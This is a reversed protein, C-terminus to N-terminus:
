NKDGDIDKQSTLFKEKIEDFIEFLIWLIPSSVFAFSLGFLTVQMKSLNDFPLFVVLGIFLLFNILYLYFFTKM